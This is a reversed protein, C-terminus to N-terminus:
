KKIPKEIPKKILEEPHPHNPIECEGFENRFKDDCTVTLKNVNSGSLETLSKSSRNLQECKIKDETTACDMASAALEPQKNEESMPKDKCAFLIFSAIILTFTLRLRKM